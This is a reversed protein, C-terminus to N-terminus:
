AISFTDCRDFGVESSRKAFLSYQDLADRLTGYKGDTEASWRRLVDAIRVPENQSSSDASIGLVQEISPCKGQMTAALKKITNDDIVVHRNEDTLLNHLLVPGLEAYGEYCLLDRFSLFPYGPADSIQKADLTLNPKNPENRVIAVLVRCVKVEAIVKPPFQNLCHPHVLVEDLIIDSLLSHQSKIFSVLSSRLAVLQMEANKLCRMMLSLSSIKEGAFEVIVEIGAQELWRIGNKWMKCGDNTELVTQHESLKPLLAFHSFIQLLLTHIFKPTFCVEMSPSNLKWGCKYSFESNPNWIDQPRKLEILHPFFYFDENEATAFKSLKQLTGTDVIKICLQMTLMYQVVFETSLSHDRLQREIFVKLLSASTIGYQAVSSLRPNKMLSHVKPVLETVKRILWSQKPDTHKLFMIHGSLHLAECTNQLTDPSKKLSMLDPASTKALQREVDQLSCVCVNKFHSCLFTNLINANKYDFSLSHSVNKCVSNLQLILKSFGPISSDRCDLTICDVYIILRSANEAMLKQICTVQRNLRKPEIKDSHSAVVIVRVYRDGNSISSFFSNWYYFAKKMAQMPDRVDVTLLVVAYSQCEMFDLSTYYEKQGAFEFLTCNRLQNNNHLDTPVLGVSHGHPEDVSWVMSSFFSSLSFPNKLSEVLSTKGTKSNGIIYVRVKPILPPRAYSSPDVSGKAGKSFLYEVIETHGSEHALDVATEFKWTKPQDLDEFFYNVLFQVVELQGYEAAVHLLDDCQELFKVNKQDLLFKLIDLQGLRCAFHAPNNDNADLISIDVKCDSVLYRVVEFHGRQSAMHLPTQDLGGVLMPDCHAETILFKIMPLYGKWCAFHIPANKGVDVTNPDMRCQSILYRVIPIHGGMVALHLANRGQCNKSLPSCFERTILYSVISLHGCIAAFHLATNSNSDESAPNCKSAVLYELIQLNGSIAALQLPTQRQDDECDPQVKPSCEAVLYQVIAAHGNLCAFHIPTRNHENKCSPDCGMTGILYKVVELHGSQSALHLPLRGFKDPQLVDSPNGILYKMVELKGGIAAFHLPTCGNRDQKTKDLGLDVVFYKITQESNGLAAYHLASLKNNQHHPDCNHIEILYKCVNVHGFRAAVHLSTSGEADKCDPDVAHQLILYKVIELCGKLSALHILTRDNFSRQMPNCQREEIFYKVADIRNESVALDLPTCSFKDKSQIDCQKVEVLFKIVNMHGKLAALHLPTHGDSNASSPNEGQGILYEVVALKGNLCAVHLPTDAKYVVEAPIVLEITFPATVRIPGILHVRPDTLFCTKLENDAFIDKHATYMYKLFSLDDDQIALQILYPILDKAESVIDFCREKVFYKIIESCTGAEHLPTHNLKDKVHIDCNKVEVLYKVVHIKGTRAAIHLPTRGLDDRHSPSVNQKHILYQVIHLHGQECAYHITTKGFGGMDNVSCNNTILFKAIKLHGGMAALHLVSRQECDRSKMDSSNQILYRVVSYHGSYAALHLPTNQYVDAPSMEVSHKEVLYQVVDLRGEISALHLLTRDMYGISNVNCKMQILYKLTRLHGLLACIHIPSQQQTDKCSVDANCEEVLYQVVSLHDRACAVHLATRKEQGEIMPDFKGENVLYRIVTLRGGLGARHFCTDDRKNRSLPDCKKENILYKVIELHGFGAAFHLPSMDEDALCIASLKCDDILYKVIGIAEQMCAAHLLNRGHVIKATPEIYNESILFKLLPLSGVKYVLLLKLETTIQLRYNSKEILYKVLDVNGSVMAFYLISHGGCDSLLSMNHEDVFYKVVHLHGHICAWHLPLSAYVKDGLKGAVLYMNISQVPMRFETQVDECEFCKLAHEKIGHKDQYRCTSFHMVMDLCGSITASQICSLAFDKPYVIFHQINCEFLFYRFVDWKQALLAKHLLIYIECIQAFHTSPKQSNILFKLVHLHGSAAARGIPTLNRDDTFRPSAHMEDVLYRVISGHGNKSALHLPTTSNQETPQVPLQKEEIFYKLADINGEAAACHLPTHGYKNVAWLLSQEKEVICRIIRLSGNTAAAHLPFNGNDDMYWLCVSSCFGIIDKATRYHGNECALHLPTKGQKGKRLMNCNENLYQVVHLQGAQAALHLPTNKDIDQVLPDCSCEEVLYQVVNVHGNKAALHLPTHLREDTDSTSFSYNQLIYEAIQLHGSSSALHLTTRGLLGRCMVGYPTKKLLCIFANLHGCLIACHIPLYDLDNRSKVSCNGEEILYEVVCSHGLLAALHVPTACNKDTCCPDAKYVECLHKVIDLHGYLSSFHLATRQFHGQITVHQPYKALIYQVVKLKGEKASYHLPTNSYEDRRLLSSDREEVFFRVLDVHGFKAAVHLPTTHMQFAYLNFVKVDEILYSIVEAHGNICATHIPTQGQDDRCFDHFKDECKKVVKQFNKLNIQHPVLSRKQIQRMPLKRLSQHKSSGLRKIPYVKSGACKRLVQITHMAYIHRAVCKKFHFLSKIQATTLLTAINEASLMLNVQEIFFHLVKLHGYESALHLVTKGEEGRCFPNQWKQFVLYKVIELKGHIVALHIPMNENGDRQYPNCGAEAILYVLIDLYGKQAAIHVASTNATFYGRRCVADDPKCVKQEVLFKVIDIHGQDVAVHLIVSVESDRLYPSIDRNRIDGEVVEGGGGGGEEEGKLCRILAEECAEILYKLVHMHGGKTASYLCTQGYSDRTLPSLSCDEVLRKVVTLNGRESALHLLSEGRMGHRFTVVKETPLSNLVAEFNGSELGSELEHKDLVTSCDDLTHKNAMMTVIVVSRNHVIYYEISYM